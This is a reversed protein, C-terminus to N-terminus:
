EGQRANGRPNGRANADAGGSRAPAPLAADAADVKGDGNRDVRRFMELGIALHEDADILDNKNKDLVGFRVRAQRLERSKIEHIRGDVRHRFEAAYEDFSLRGDGNSDTREFQEKRAADFEERPIQGDNNTDYLARMGAITHSTPMALISRPADAPLAEPLKGTSFAAFIRESAADFRERSVHSQGSGALSEFRRRTQADSDALEAQIRTTLRNDFEQVYEGLSIGGSRDSDSEVFRQRRFNEYEERTLVGDQDLDHAKIFADVNNGHGSFTAPLPHPAAPKSQAPATGAAHQASVLPSALALALCLSLPLPKM